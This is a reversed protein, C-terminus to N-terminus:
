LLANLQDVDFSPKRKSVYGIAPLAQRVSLCAVNQARVMEIVTRLLAPSCGMLSPPQTVDHAYFIVWGNRDHASRLVHRLKDRSLTRDYLEIVKLLGLDITGANVGEFIGRCTDFHKQLQLKRPLSVVGFPYCFNTIEIDPCLERMALLNQRCEDEMERADLEDVAVHSFSHCGIEHGRVHLDRVHEREILRWYTDDTGCIGGAIYFTGCIGYEDLVAAGNVYASDPVDDFTFSVLPANNRMTFPKTPLHRAIRRKVRTMLPPFM